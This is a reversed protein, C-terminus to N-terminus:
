VLYRWAFTNRYQVGSKDLATGVILKYMADLVHELYSLEPATFQKVNTPEKAAGVSGKKQHRLISIYPPATTSQTDGSIKSISKISWSRFNEDLDTLIITQQISAQSSDVSEGALRPDEEIGEVGESDFDPFHPGRPSPGMGASSNSRLQSPSNLDIHHTPETPITSISGHQSSAYLRPAVEGEFTISDPNVDIQVNGEPRLLHPASNRRRLIGRRQTKASSNTGDYFLCVQVQKM